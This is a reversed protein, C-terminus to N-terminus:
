DEKGRGRSRAVSEAQKLRELVERDGGSIDAAGGIDEDGVGGRTVANGGVGTFVDRSSGTGAAGGGLDQSSVGGRNSGTAMGTGGRVDNTGGAGSTTSAAAAALASPGADIGMYAASADPKNTAARDARGVNGAEQREERGDDEAMEDMEGAGTAGESRGGASIAGPDAM